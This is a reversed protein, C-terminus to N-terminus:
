GSFKSPVVGQDNAGKFPVDADGLARHLEEALADHVALVAVCHDDGLLRRSRQM